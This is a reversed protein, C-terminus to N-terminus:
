RPRARVVNGSAIPHDECDKRSASAPDYNFEKVGYANTCLWPEAQAWPAALLTLAVLLWRM